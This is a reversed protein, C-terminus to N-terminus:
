YDIFPFTVIVFINHYNGGNKCCNFTNMKIKKYKGNTVM